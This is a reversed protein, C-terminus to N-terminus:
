QREGTAPASEPSSSDQEDDISSEDEDFSEPSAVIGARGSAPMYSGTSRSHSLFYAALEPNASVLGSDSVTAPVVYEFSASQDNEVPAVSALGPTEGNISGDDNQVGAGPLLNITLLAVAAAIAGGSALKLWQTSNNGPAPSAPEITSIDWDPEDAIKASLRAMFSDDAASAESRMIQGVRISAAAQDFLEDDATLRRLLMPSETEDLENDLWASLQEKIKDTM